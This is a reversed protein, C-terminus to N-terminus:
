FHRIKGWILTKELLDTTEAKNHFNKIEFNKHSFLEYKSIRQNIIYSFIRFNQYIIQVPMRNTKSHFISRIQHFNQHFIDSEGM